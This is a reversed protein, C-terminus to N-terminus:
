PDWGNLDDWDKENPDYDDWIRKYESDDEYEWDNEDDGAGELICCADCEFYVGVGEYYLVEGYPNETSLKFIGFCQHCVREPVEGDQIERHIGAYERCIGCGSSLFVMKACFGHEAEYHEEETHWATCYDLSYDDCHESRCERDCREYINM